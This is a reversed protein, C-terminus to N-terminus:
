KDPTIMPTRGIFRRAEVEHLLFSAVDERPISATMSFRATISSM